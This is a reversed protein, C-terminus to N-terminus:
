NARREKNKVKFPISLSTQEWEIKLVGSGNGNKELSIALKEIPSKLMKKNLEIRMLDLEPNYTTGWQGTQKNIILKWQTESPLTYLTYAGKPILVGGVELDAETVFATAENAGTRWWKNYPVLEGMIKRGRMSPSGYNVSIKKGSIIVQSSDRPSLIPQQAFLPVANLLLAVVLLLTFTRCCAVTM